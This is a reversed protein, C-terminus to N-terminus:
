RLIKKFNPSIMRGSKIKLCIILNVILVIYVFYIKSFRYINILKILNFKSYYSFKYKIIDFNSSGPIYLNHKAIFIM